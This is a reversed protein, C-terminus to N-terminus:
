SSPSDQPQLIQQIQKELQHVRADLKPLNKIKAIIRHAETYPRTPSGGYVGSELISQAVGSQAMIMVHDAITLHGSVGVQGGLMVFNGIKTTGAIGVQAVICCHEGIEVQHAIQVLNDIKTGKKIITAKFRARDITTNAGIEVDDELIVTGLHPLLTQEGKANFVYGFGMSGIVAGSQIMVRQGINVRDLITARPYIYSDNGITVDDGIVCGTKLVVNDGIHSREGIVVYPEISVHKGITASAPIIATPHIGPMPKSPSPLFIEICKQFCQNPSSSRCVLFNRPLSSFRSFVESSVIVAGAKTSSLHKIYKANELFTVHHSDANLLDDVGTIQHQENGYLDAEILNALEQLSCSRPHSQSM